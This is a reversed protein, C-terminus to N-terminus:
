NKREEGRLIFREFKGGASFKYLPFKYRVVSGGTLVKASFDASNRCFFSSNQINEQYSQTIMDM